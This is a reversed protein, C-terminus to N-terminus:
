LNWGYGVLYNKCSDCFSVEEQLPNGGKADRMYCYTNICHPLGFTHGLEHIAVKYLQHLMYKKNLRFTSVVCARGPTYGLGMVGFDIIGKKSASIDKTTLAITKCNSATASSIIRLLSDARYRNNLKTYASLPIPKAPLLYVPGIVKKIETLVTNVDKAPIDSFPQIYIATIKKNPKVNIKNEVDKCSTVFLTCVFLLLCLLRM